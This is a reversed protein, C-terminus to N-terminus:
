KLFQRNSQGVVIGMQSALFSLFATMASLALM